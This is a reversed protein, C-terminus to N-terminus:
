KTQVQMFLENVDHSNKIKLMSNSDENTNEIERSRSQFDQKKESIETGYESINGNALWIIIKNELAAGRSSALRDNVIIAV